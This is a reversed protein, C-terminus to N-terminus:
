NDIEKKKNNKFKIILFITGSIVLIGVVSTCVVITIIKYRSSNIVDNKNIEYEVKFKNSSAKFSIVGNEDLKFDTVEQYINNEYSYVKISDKNSVDNLDITLSITNEKNIEYEFNNSILKFEYYKTKVLTEDNVEEDILSFWVKFSSDISSDNYTIIENDYFAILFGTTRDYIDIIELYYSGENEEYKSIDIDIKYKDDDLSILEIEENGLVVKKIDESTFIVEYYKKNDIIIFDNSIIEPPLTTYEKSIIVKYIKSPQTYGNILTYTFTLEYEGEEYLLNNQEDVLPIELYAMNVIQGGSISTSTYCSKVLPHESISVYGFSNLNSLYTNLVIQGTKKNKLTVVNNKIARSVFQQIYVYTSENEIGLNIRERKKNYTVESYYDLINGKNNKIVDKETSTLKKNGVSFISRFDANKYVPPNAPYVDVFQNVIESEYVKNGDREFTFPEVADGNNYDGYFGMFPISLDIDDKNQNSSEFVVYGEINTGSTFKELLKKNEESLTYSFDISSEGQKITIDYSVSALLEDKDTKVLGEHLSSLTADPIITAPVQVYLTAKYKKSESSENHANITFKIIGNKIDDNNKLEIKAKNLDGTSLYVESEIAKDVNVLGAGVKRPSLYSGNVYKIPTATSQMRAMLTKKYNDLNNGDYNSIIDAMAGSINPAAMSTGSYFAYLNESTENSIGSYINTGPASIDPTLSLDTQGGDSSYEADIRRGIRIIKSSENSLLDYTYTSSLATPIYEGSSLNSEGGPNFNIVTNGLSSTSQKTNCIIIGIAGHKHANRIKATFLYNKENEKLEEQTPAGRKVIAVKGDVNINEYEEDTGYGALVYELELFDEDEDILGQFTSVKVDTIESRNLAEPIVQDIAYFLQNSATSFSSLITEDNKLNTASITNVKSYSSYSGIESSEITDLSTYEGVGTEYNSKGDNGAAFNVQIGANNLNDFINKFDDSLNYDILSSGLSLNIVDAKLLMADELANLIADIKFSGSNNTVRMLALQSNPAAGLFTNNAGAIGAVHSGHYSKNKNYTMNTDDTAYSYYFPIKNNLYGASKAYFSTYNKISDITAKTYKYNNTLDKFMEHDVKFSDDIVCILTNEGDKSSSPINMQIRSYDKDPKTVNKTDPVFYDNLDDEYSITQNEFVNKVYSINEVKEYDLTSIQLNIINSINSYTNLVRYNLGIKSKLVNLFKNQIVERDEISNLDVDKLEVFINKDRKNLTDKNLNSILSVSLLGFLVALISFRRKM